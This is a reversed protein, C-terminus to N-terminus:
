FQILYIIIFSCFILMKFILIQECLLFARISELARDNRLQFLMIKKSFSLFFFLSFSHVSAHKIFYCSCAKAISGNLSVTELFLPKNVKNEGSWIVFM